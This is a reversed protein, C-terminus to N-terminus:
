LPEVVLPIRVVSKFELGKNEMLRDEHDYYWTIKVENGTQVIKELERFIDYFKRASSSNFYEIKCVFNTEKNPKKVYESIWNIIPTYFESSNEPLSKGEIEFVNKQIDFNVAPKDETKVTQFLDSM